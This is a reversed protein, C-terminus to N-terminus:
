PFNTYKSDSTGEKRQKNAFNTTGFGLTKTASIWRPDWMTHKKKELPVQAGQDWIRNSKLLKHM